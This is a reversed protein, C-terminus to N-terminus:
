VQTLHKKMIKLALVPDFESLLGMAYLSYTSDIYFKPHRPRLEFDNRFVNTTKALIQKPDTSKIIVGGTGIVVEIDTLDKGTQHHVMGMPTYIEEMKGAHRNMAKYVCMEALLRDILEESRNKPLMSVNTNRDNIEKEIDIGKELNIMMIEEKTLAKLIGTASYRMGLDGEVTRKAYPEELGTLIVDGRKSPESISYLDTTAGGVDVVVVEGLGPEHMYGKALLECARLVAEPTPLVVKDIESEIKKIGKAEIINKLFLERIKERAQKINLQNIKPMVNDVIHGNVHHNDFIAKIEDQVSKNGGYVIPIGLNAESLMKANFLVCESNGGDSGGALLVIDIKKTKILEVESSNLHHSFVLDVKAGAGLCVRKAAEVTLEEVLGIAAMKLGGAASSCAIVRDFVVPHGITKSLQDLANKYGITIDTDVTTFHNASAFIDGLESDVATLKTFTSGFDILLYKAM